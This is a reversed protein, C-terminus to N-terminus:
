GAMEPNDSEARSEMAPSDRERVLAALQADREALAAEAAARRAESRALDETLAALQRRAVRLSLHVGVRALLEEPQFPKTLYDVGGVQFGRVKDVLDTLATAFIVPTDALDPEARLRRCTEFGDIGPMMVDLVILDPRGYRAKSLGSEGDRAVFVRYGADILHNLVIELNAPNDDVVLVTPRASSESHSLEQNNPM